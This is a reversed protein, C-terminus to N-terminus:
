RRFSANRKDRLTACHICDHYGLERRKPAIKEGCDCEEPGIGKPVQSRQKRIQEQLMDDHHKEAREIANEDVM